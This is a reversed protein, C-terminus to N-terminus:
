GDIEESIEDIALSIPKETIIENNDEAEQAIERARDAADHVLKYRSDYANILKGINPNLM